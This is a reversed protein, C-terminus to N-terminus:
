RSAGVPTTTAPAPRWGSLWQRLSLLHLGLAVPVVFGPLWVFPFYAIITNAPENLFVRFPLPASLLAVGVINLLLALSLVNWIIALARGAGATRALWWGVFPASLGALIDWNRGEFTMQVPIAGGLFELWLIIEMLVRFSQAGVLWGPPTHRLLEGVARSRSLWALALLPPGLVLLARPPRADFDAYFGALALGALLALWLGLGLAVKALLGRQAAAPWSARHLVKRLGWLVLSFLGAVLALFLGTGLPQAFPPM